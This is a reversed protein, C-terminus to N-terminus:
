WFDFGGPAANRGQDAALRQAFENYPFWAQAPWDGGIQRGNQGSLGQQLAAPAAFVQQQTELAPHLNDVQAHRAGQAHDRTIAEHAGMIMHFPVEAVGNQTQMVWPTEASHEPVGITVRRHLLVRQQRVQAYLRKVGAEIATPQAAM